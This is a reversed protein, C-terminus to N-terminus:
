HGLFEALTELATFEAETSAHEAGLRYLIELAPTMADRDVNLAGHFQPPNVAEAAAARSHDDQAIEYSGLTAEIEFRSDTVIRSHYGMGSAVDEYDAHTELHLSRVETSSAVWFGTEKEHWGFALWEVPLRYASM